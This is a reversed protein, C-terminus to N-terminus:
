PKLFDIKKPLVKFLAPAYGIFEGDVDIPCSAEMPIIELASTKKYFVEPNIIKKGKKVGSLNRLYDIITVDGLIVTGFKGDSLSADPAICLGSGFYKGNAIVMSLTKGEWQFEESSYKVKTRRYSFMAKLTEMFFTGNAGLLKKSKNINEVICGGIGIDAINIFYREAPKQNVDTFRIQGIDIKTHENKEILNKLQTISGNLGATKSFDNATGFALLGLVPLHERGSLLMGNVVESLTGDGGVAILHSYNEEVANKALEVAHFARTTEVIESGRFNTKIEQILSTKNRLLGKVIFIIKM